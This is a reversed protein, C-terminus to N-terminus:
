LIGAGQLVKSRNLAYCRKNDIIDYKWIPANSKFDQIFAEYLEFTVKREKSAIACMFSTEGVKVDGISHAMFIQAYLSEARNQWSQFWSKLIPEYIDFSLATINNEDRVIGSFVSFAGYNKSRAIEYWIGYFNASELAGNCITLNQM